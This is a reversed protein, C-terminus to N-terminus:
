GPCPYELYEDIENNPKYFINKMRTACEPCKTSCHGCKDCILKGCYKCTGHKGLILPSNGCKGKSDIFGGCYALITIYENNNPRKGQLLGVGNFKFHNFSDLNTKTKCIWLIDLTEILEDIVSASDNIGLPKTNSPDSYTDYILQRYKNPSYEQLDKFNYLTEIFHTLIALFLFPLKLRKNDHPLLRKFFKLQWDALDTHYITPLEKGCLLYAPIPNINLYKYLIFSIYNNTLENSLEYKYQNQKEYYDDPYDFLWRPIFNMRDFSLLLFSRGFRKELDNIESYSTEGLYRITYIESSDYLNEYKIYPSLVGAIRVDKEHRDQKFRSVCHEVYNNKSNISLRANKVDICFISNLKLDYLKWDTSCKDSKRDANNETLQTLSIDDVSYGLSRYFESAVKEAARASFMKAYTFNDPNASNSWLQALQKDQSDFNSFVSKSTWTNNVFNYCDSNITDSIIKIIKQLKDCSSSLKIKTNRVPTTESFCYTSTQRIYMLEQSTPLRWDTEDEDSVTKVWATSNRYIAKQEDKYSSYTAWMLATSKDIISERGKIFRDGVDVSINEIDEIKHMQVLIHLYKTFSNETTYRM